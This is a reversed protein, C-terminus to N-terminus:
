SRKFFTKSVRPAGGDPAPNSTERVLSDGELYYSITTVIPGNAGQSTQEIVLKDASWAAKATVTGRPMELTSTGGITYKLTGFTFSTSDLAITTPGAVGVAGGGGGRGGGGAAAVRMETGGAAVV